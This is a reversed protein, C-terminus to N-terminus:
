GTVLRVPAMALEWEWGPNSGFTEDTSGPLTGCSVAFASEVDTEDNASQQM